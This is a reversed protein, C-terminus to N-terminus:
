DDMETMLANLVMLAGGFMLYANEWWRKSIAGQAALVVLTLGTAAEVQLAQQMSLSDTKRRTLFLVAVLARCVWVTRSSMGFILPTILSDGIMTINFFEHSEATYRTPVDIGLWEGFAIRAPRGVSEQQFTVDPLTQMIVEDYNTYAYWFSIL